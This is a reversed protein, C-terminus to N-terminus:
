ESPTAYAPILPWSCALTLCVFLAFNPHPLSLHVCPKAILFVPQESIPKLILEWCRCLLEYDETAGTEPFGIGAEHVVPLCMSYLCVGLVIDMCKFYFM